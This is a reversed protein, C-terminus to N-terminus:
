GHGHEMRETDREFTGGVAPGSELNRGAYFM